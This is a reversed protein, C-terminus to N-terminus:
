PEARLREIYSVWGSQRRLECCEGGKMGRTLCQYEGSHIIESLPLNEKEVPGSLKEVSPYNHMRKPYKKPRPKHQRCTLQTM